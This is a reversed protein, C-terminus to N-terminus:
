TATTCVRPLITEVLAMDGQLGEEFCDALATALAAAKKLTRLCDPCHLDFEASLKDDSDEEEEDKPKLGKLLLANCSMHGCRFRVQEIRESCDTCVIVNCSECHRKVCGSCGDEGCWECEVAEICDECIWGGTEGYHDCERPCHDVDDDGEEGCEECLEGMVLSIFKSLM